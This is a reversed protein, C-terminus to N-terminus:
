KVSLTFFCVKGAGDIILIEVAAAYIHILSLGPPRHEPFSGHHKSPGGPKEAKGERTGADQGGNEYHNGDPFYGAPYIGGAPVGGSRLLQQSRPM